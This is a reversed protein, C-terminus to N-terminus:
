VSKKEPEEVAGCIEDGLVGSGEFIGVMAEVVSLVAISVVSLTVSVFPNESSAPIIGATPPAAPPIKIKTSMKTMMIIIITAFLLPLLRLTFSPICAHLSRFM